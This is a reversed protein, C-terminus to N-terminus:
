FMDSKVCTTLDPTRNLEREALMRELRDAFIPLRYARCLGLYITQWPKSHCPELDRPALLHAIEHLLVRHTRLSHTAHCFGIRPKGEHWEACAFEVPKRSAVDAQFLLGLSLPQEQGVEQWVKDAMDALQRMSLIHRLDVDTCEPDDEVDYEARYLKEDFTYLTCLKPVPWPTLDLPM